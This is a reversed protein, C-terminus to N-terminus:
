TGQGRRGRRPRLTAFPPSRPGLRRTQPFPASGAVPPRRRPNRWSAFRRGSVLLLLLGVLGCPSLALWAAVLSPPPEPLGRGLLRAHSAATMGCPSPALRYVLLAPHTAGLSFRNELLRPLSAFGRRIQAWRLPCCVRRHLRRPPPSTSRASHTGLTRSAIPATMPRVRLSHRQTCGAHRHRWGIFLSLQTRLVSRFGIKSSGRRSQKHAQPACALLRRRRLVLPTHATHDHRRPCAPPVVERRARLSHRTGHTFSRLTHRTTMDGLARLRCSWVACVSRTLQPTHTRNQPCVLGLILVCVSCGFWVAPIIALSLSGGRLRFGRSARRVGARGLAFVRCRLPSAVRSPALLAPGRLADRWGRPSLHRPRPALARGLLRTKWQAHAYAHARQM